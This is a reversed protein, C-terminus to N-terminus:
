NRRWAQSRNFAHEADDPRLVPKAEALRGRLCFSSRNPWDALMSGRKCLDGTFVLPPCLVEAEANV